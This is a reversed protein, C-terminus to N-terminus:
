SAGGFGSLRHSSKTDLSTESLGTHIKDAYHQVMKLTASAHDGDGANLQRGALETMEHVLKAYLFCQDKPQAQEAKVILATMAESDVVKEDTALALNCNLTPTLVSFAVILGLFRM